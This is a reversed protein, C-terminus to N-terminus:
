KKAGITIGFLMGPQMQEVTPGKRNPDNAAAPQVPNGDGRGELLQQAVLANRAYDVVFDKSWEALQANAKTNIVEALVNREIDEHVRVVNLLYAQDFAEGSLPQLTQLLAQNRPGPGSGRNTTGAAAAQNAGPAAGAPPAAAGGMGAGGPAAGAAAPPTGMNGGVGSIELKAAIDVMSKGAASYEETMRKIFTKIAPSSSKELALTNLQTILGTKDRLLRVYHEESESVQSAQASMALVSTVALPLLYKKM